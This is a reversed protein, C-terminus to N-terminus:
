LGFFKNANGRYLKTLVDAPLNLGNIRTHGEDSDEDHFPLIVDRVDTEWFLRQSWYRTAFYDDATGDWGVSLDSAFLIRNQHRVIFERSGAPDRGLERIMWKTSATDIFLNEYRQLMSALVPLNGPEPLSGFHVSIAGLDKHYDLVTNFEEIAQVKTRYRVTDSYKNRYWIDPDAVHIDIPLGYHEIQSFVDNFAPHSIAFPRQAGAYDLFRPGFWMKIMDYDHARATEVADLLLQTDHNAFGEKPLYLAFRFVRDPMATQLKQKIEPSAIVMFGNVSYREAWSIYDLFAADNWV